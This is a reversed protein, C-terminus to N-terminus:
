KHLALSDAMANLAIDFNRYPIYAPKECAALYSRCSMKRHLWDLCM